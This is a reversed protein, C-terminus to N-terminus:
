LRDRFIIATGRGSSSTDFSPHTAAFGGFSGLWVHFTQFYGFKLEASFTRYYLDEAGEPRASTIAAYWSSRMQSHDKAAEGGFIRTKVGPEKLDHVAIL